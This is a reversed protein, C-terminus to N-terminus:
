KGIGGGGVMSATGSAIHDFFGYDLGEEATFWKDRANDELIKELTQGTQEATLESMVQKMHMILQAQIRIDSETGGIGRSPQHMLIPALPPAYRKGPTGSSLLFQCMTAALCTAVTVVAMPFPKITDHIAICSTVHVCRP